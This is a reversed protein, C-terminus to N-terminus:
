LISTEKATNNQAQLDDVASESQSLFYMCLDIQGRNYAEEQVSKLENTVDYAAALKESAISALHNQMVQKQTITLICGQLAEEENLEYTSFQNPILVAM